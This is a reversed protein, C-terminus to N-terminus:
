GVARARHGRARTRRRHRDLRRGDRGRARGVVEDGGMQRALEVTGEALAASHSVIVLNVTVRRRLAGRRGRGRRGQARAPGRPDGPRHAARRQREPRGEREWFARVLAMVERRESPDEPTIPSGFRVELQVRRSFLRGKLRKPWYQGPPMADHTGGVWIPVISLGHQAALVAAGSRVKGLEGDRSRTGEPFMLLNWGEAILKDVHDTAGKGLGGGNRGLPVTNFVLAAGSATIRSKYFYDAAAAVATRKRWRPPMARLITPTDLHSSHNAVFIVPKSPEAALLERGSVRRRVYFFLLPGLVGVLISSGMARPMAGRAWSVDM